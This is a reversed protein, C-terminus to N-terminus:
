ALITSYQYNYLFDFPYPVSYSQSWKITHSVANGSANSIRSPSLQTGNVFNDPMLTGFGTSTGAGLPLPFSSRLVLIEATNPGSPGSYSLTLQGSVMIVKNAIIYNELHNSFTFGGASNNSTISVRGIFVITSGSSNPATFAAQNSGNITLVNGATYTSNGSSFSVGGLFDAGDLILGSFQATSGGFNRLYNYNFASGPNSSLPIGAVTANNLSIGSMSGISITSNGGGTVISIGQGAVLNNGGGGGAPTSWFLSSGNSTLVQGNTGVATLGTGGNAPLVPVTLQIVHGLTVTIGNGATFNIGTPPSTFVAETGNITLVNGSTYNSNVDSFTFPAGGGFVAGALLAGTLQVSTLNGIQVTTGVISIGTGAQYTTSSLALSFTAPTTGVTTVTGTLRYTRGSNITGQNVFVFTNILIPQVAIDWDDSRDYSTTGVNFIYIGNQFQSTQDKVLIRDGNFLSVGDLSPFGGVGTFQDKGAPSGPVYTAGINVTSAVKVAALYTTGTAIANDVYAKTAADTGATPTSMSTLRKNSVSITSGLTNQLTPTNVVTAQVSPSNAIIKTSLTQSGTLRAVSADVAVQSGVVTIGDGSTPAGGGATANIIPNTSTGTITVNTGATVTAVGSSAPTNWFITSGNSTLVQGNTGVVSLGTGGNAIPVPTVLSIVGALINLGTGATLSGGGGVANIIPDTLTGTVTIGTGATISSVGGGGGTANIIPNTLTGTVTVNTGATISAVGASVSAPLWVAHTGSITLVKGAAENGPVLTLTGFKTNDLNKVAIVNNTMSINAGPTYSLSVGTENFVAPDNGVNSVQMKLSWETGSNTGEGVSILTGKPIPSSTNSSRNWDEARQFTSNHQVYVYIGNTSQSSENKVLIRDGDVLTVGQLTSPAGVFIDDDATPMSPVYSLGLAAITAIRCLDKVVINSVFVNTVSPIYPSFVPKVQQPPQSM